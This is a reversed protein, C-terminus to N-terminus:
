PEAQALASVENWADASLTISGPQGAAEMRAAINVTDGWLDFSFQTEGIVGAVVPGLHIGLRVEWPPPISRASEIMEQGCRLLTLVPNDSPRLLGAAGM